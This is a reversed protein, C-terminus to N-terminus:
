HLRHRRGDIEVSASLGPIHIGKRIYAPLEYDGYGDRAPAPRSRSIGFGECLADVLLRAFRHTKNM